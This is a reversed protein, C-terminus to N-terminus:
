NFFLSGVKFGVVVLLLYFVVKTLLLSTEDARAVKRDYYNRNDDVM